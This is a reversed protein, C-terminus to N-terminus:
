WRIETVTILSSAPKLGIETENVPQMHLTIEPKSEFATILMIQM